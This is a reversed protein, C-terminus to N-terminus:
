FAWTLTVGARVDEDLAAFAADADARTAIVQSLLTLHNSVTYTLAVSGLVSGADLASQLTVALLLDGNRMSNAYRLLANGSV